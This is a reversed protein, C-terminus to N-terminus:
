SPPLFFLLRSVSLSSVFFFLGIGLRNLDKFNWFIMSKSNNKLTQGPTEHTTRHCSTRQWTGHAATLKPWTKSIFIIHYLATRWRKLCHTEFWNWLSNICSYSFPLFPVVMICHTTSNLPQLERWGDSIVRSMVEQVDTEQQVSKVGWQSWDLSFGAARSDKSGAKVSDQVVIFVASGGTEHKSSPVTNLNWKTPWISVCVSCDWVEAQRLVAFPSMKTHGDAQRFHLPAQWKIVDSLRSLLPKPYELVTKSDGLHSRYSTSPKDSLTAMTEVDVAVLAFGSNWLKSKSMKDMSRDLSSDFLQLCPTWLCNERRTDM